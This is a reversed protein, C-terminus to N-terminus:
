FRGEVEVGTPTLTARFAARERSWLVTEVVIPTVYALTGVAGAVWNVRRTTLWADPDDVGGEAGDATRTLRLYTAWTVSAGALQLGGVLLGANTQGNEFYMIGGPILVRAPWRPARPPPPKPDPLAPALSARVQEFYSCVEPPHRFADLTYAPAESLLALFTNRAAESGEEFYLIDGLYALAEQRVAPPLAPGDALLETLRDRAAGPDGAQYAELAIELRRPADLEEAPAATIWLALLTGFWMPAWTALGSSPRM